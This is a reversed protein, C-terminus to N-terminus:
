FFTNHFGVADGTFCNPSVVVLVTFTTQILPIAKRLFLSVSSSRRELQDLEVLLITEQLLALDEDIKARRGTYTVLRRFIKSETEIPGNFRVREEM